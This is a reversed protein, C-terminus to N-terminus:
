ARHDSRIVAGDPIRSPEDGGRIVVDGEIVVDQGFSVNGTVKLSSCRALSPPGAPFRRDFEDLLKFFRPDLDITPPAVRGNTLVIRGDDTLDFADSRVALLDDTNKVPSFRRRPVRVATANEFLSIAAGMASELQVVQPTEPDRPDASKRNVITDLPLFGGHRALLDALAPLSIWINNTNFFRYRDVDQFEDVEEPPCQASERLAFRGDGLRCLHGGKRDAPTRDAVEMMFDSGTRDMHALLDQDLVAGLNDSNSVFAYEFGSELLTDLVRTTGLATYLDGHGPPCWELEPDRPWEVPTHGEILIKPIKHQLFGLPLGDTGLDSYAELARTTDTATRFSNMLILPIRSGTERRISLIQGAVLDLFNSGPKVEILSKASELGMGTGLGGNLKIVVTRDVCRPDSEDNNAFTDADVLSEVPEIRDRGLTGTEGDLFRDLHFRFSDIAALPLDAERM